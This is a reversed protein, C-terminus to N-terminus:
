PESINRKDITKINGLKRTIMDIPSEVNQLTRRSVHTYRETTKSSGHGLLVQILRIDSGKGWLYTTSSYFLFWFVKM